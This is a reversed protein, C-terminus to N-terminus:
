SKNNIRASLPRTFRILKLSNRFSNQPHQQQQQQQQQQKSKKKDELKLLKESPHFIETKSSVTVSGLTVNKPTFVNPARGFLHSQAGKGRRGCPWIPARDVPFLNGGFV